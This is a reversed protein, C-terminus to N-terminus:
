VVGISNTVIVQKLSTTGLSRLFIGVKGLFRSKILQHCVVPKVLSSLVLLCVVQQFANSIDKLVRVLTFNRHIHELHLLINALSILCDDKSVVVTGETVKIVSGGSSNM